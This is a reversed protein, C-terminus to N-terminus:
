VISNDNQTTAPENFIQQFLKEPYYVITFPQNTTYIYIDRYKGIVILVFIKTERQM